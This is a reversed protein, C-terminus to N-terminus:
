GLTKTLWARLEDPGSLIPIGHAARDEKQIWDIPDFYASLVGPVLLATSTFPASIIAVNNFSVAQPSRQPSQLLM